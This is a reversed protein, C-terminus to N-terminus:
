GDPMEDYNLLGDGNQDYRQFFREAANEPNWGGRGGRGDPRGDQGQSQAQGHSQGQEQGQSRGPGGGGNPAAGGSPSAPGGGEGREMQRQQMYATFQQRSIQGNTVGMREAMRDFWSQMFPDLETRS